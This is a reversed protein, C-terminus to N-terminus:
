QEEKISSKTPQSVSFGGRTSVFFQIAGGIILLTICTGFLAGTWFMETVM